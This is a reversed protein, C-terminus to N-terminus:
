AIDWCWGNFGCHRDVLAFVLLCAIFSCSNAWMFHSIGCGKHYICVCRICWLFGDKLWCPHLSSPPDRYPRFMAWLHLTFISKHNKFVLDYQSLKFILDCPLLNWVWCPHLSFPPDRYPRFMAWLHLTFISKHNKFVLDYQSLKFILDCPLLNWVWCTLAILNKQFKWELRM